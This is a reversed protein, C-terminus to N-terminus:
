WRRAAEKMSVLMMSNELEVTSSPHAGRQVGARGSEKIKQMMADPEAPKPDDVNPTMLPTKM